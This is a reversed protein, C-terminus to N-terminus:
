KGVGFEIGYLEPVGTVVVATGVPPGELFFAQEDREHVDHLVQREYVLPEPNTWVTYEGTTLILVARSPVVLGDDATAVPETQIDLRRVASETLEIRWREEDEDVAVLTYPKVKENAKATSGCAALTVATAVCLMALMGRGQTTTHM